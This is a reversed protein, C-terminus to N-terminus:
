TKISFRIVIQKAKRKLVSVEIKLPEHKLYFNKNFLFM